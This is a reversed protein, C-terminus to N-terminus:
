KGRKARGFAKGRKKAPAFSGDLFVENWQLLGDADLAGLLTRSPNLWIGKEESQKLRHRCTSPLPYANHLFRWAARTQLVWLISEFCGRNTDAPRSPAFDGGSGYIKM